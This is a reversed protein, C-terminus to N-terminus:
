AQVALGQMLEDVLRACHGEPMPLDSAFVIRYLLPGVVLDIALDVDLDERLAGVEVAKTLLEALRARRPAIIRERYHTALAPNSVSAGVMCPLLRGVGTRSMAAVGELLATLQERIPGVPFVGPPPPDPMPDSRRAVADIVLAEKSPWRRYITAKGVGARAAVADMSVRDFGEETLLAITADIIAEDAHPDRPRGRAPLDADTAATEVETM